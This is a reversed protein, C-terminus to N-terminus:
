QVPHELEGLFTCGMMYNKVSDPLNFASRLVNIDHYVRRNKPALLEYYCIYAVVADWLSNHKPDDGFQDFPDANKIKDIWKQGIFEERSVDPDFGKTWFITSLDIPIYNIFSPLNLAKGDKCIIDNLLVWDYAYCDTVFQIKRDAGCQNFIVDLWNVLQESVYHRNGSVMASVHSTNGVARFLHYPVKENTMILNQIVHKDLWEDVQGDDYDTFEGYFYNGLEPCYMGVSILTSNRHLGTFEADYFVKITQPVDHNEHDM